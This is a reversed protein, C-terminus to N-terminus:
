WMLDKYMCDIIEFNTNELYYSDIYFSWYFSCINPKM